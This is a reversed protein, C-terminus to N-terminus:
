AGVQALDASVRTFDVDTAKKLNSLQELDHKVTAVETQVAHLQLVPLLLLFM